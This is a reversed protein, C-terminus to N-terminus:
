RTQKCESGDHGRGGGEEEQRFDWDGGRRAQRGAQKAQNKLLAVSKKKEM